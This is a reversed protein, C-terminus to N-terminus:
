RYTDKTQKGHRRIREAPLNGSNMHFANIKKLVSGRLVSASTEKIKEFQFLNLPSDIILWFLVIRPAAEPFRRQM